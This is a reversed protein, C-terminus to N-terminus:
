TDSPFRDHIYIYKIRSFNNGVELVNYLSLSLSECYIQIRKGCTCNVATTATAPNFRPSIKDMRRNVEWPKWM